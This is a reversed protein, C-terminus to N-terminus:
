FTWLSLKQPVKLPISGFFYSLLSHTRYSNTGRLPPFFCAVGVFCSRPVELLNKEFKGLLVKMKRIHSGGRGGRLGGRPLLTCSYPPVNVQKFALEYRGTECNKDERRDLVVASFDYASYM